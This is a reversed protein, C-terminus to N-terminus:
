DGDGDVDFTELLGTLRLVRRVPESLESLAFHRGADDYRHKAAVLVRVGSSDFFTVRSLDVTVAAAGDNAFRSLLSDLEPSTALDVDGSVRIAVDLERAVVDVNFGESAGFM